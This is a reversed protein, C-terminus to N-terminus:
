LDEKWQVGLMRCMDDAVMLWRANAKEHKQWSECLKEGIKGVRIGCKEEFTLKVETAEKLKRAAEGSSKKWPELALKAAKTDLQARELKDRLDVNDARLKALEGELEAVDRDDDAFPDAEGEADETMEELADELEVIQKAQLRCLKKLDDHEVLGVM